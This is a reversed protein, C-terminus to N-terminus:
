DLAHMLKHLHGAAQQAGKFHTVGNPRPRSLVSELCAGFQGTALAEITTQASVLHQQAWVKLCATEPWEDRAVYLVPCGYTAAEVFMGYGPKTIVADCSAMLSKFSLDCTEYNLVHSSRGQDAQNSLYLVPKAAVRTPWLREDLTLPLGGMSVLVIWPEESGGFAEPAQTYAWRKLADRSTAEPADAIPDIPIPRGWSTGMTPQPTLIISAKAYAERIQDLLKEFSEMSIASATLADPNAAVCQQLIDAWNLSCIALTPINLRHCAAITLYPADVLAARVGLSSLHDALHDVHADWDRHLRDYACLTQQLDIQLANHMMMGFDDCGADFQLPMEIRSELQTASFQSRVVPNVEPWIGASVGRAYANLIPAIQALHGFGHSSVTVLLGNEM